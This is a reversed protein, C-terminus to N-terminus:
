YEKMYFFRFNMVRGILAVISPFGEVGAVSTLFTGENINTLSSSSSRNQSGAIFHAHRTLVDCTVRTFQTTVFVRRRTEAFTEHSSCERFDEGTTTYFIKKEIAPYVSNLVTM